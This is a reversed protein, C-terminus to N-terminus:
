TSEETESVDNQEDYDQQPLSEWNELKWVGEKQWQLENQVKITYVVKSTPKDKFCSDCIAVVLSHNKQM